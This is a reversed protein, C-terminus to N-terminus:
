LVAALGTAIRGALDRRNDDYKMTTQPNAHRAHQQVARVDGGNADLAATISAHRLGHPRTKLGVDQGLESIVHYLGRGTIRQGQAPGSLGVFLATEDGSAVRTRVEVWEILALLTPEPLTRHGKQTRGKGLIWIRRGERDVDDLDLGAIEGRRLALDFFLRILAADRLAKLPAQTRAKTLMARTGDLGPGVTDRFSQAKLNGVEPMWNSIGLTRALKVASRIAALRRNVTAPTLGADVMNARFALVTGNAAGHDLNLLRTLAATASLEGLFVAFQSMDRAYADRTQASRGALYAEYLRVGADALADVLQADTLVTLSNM